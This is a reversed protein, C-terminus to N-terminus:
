DAWKKVGECFEWNDRDNRYGFTEKPEKGDVLIILEQFEGDQYVLYQDIEEDNCGIDEWHLAGKQLSWNFEYDKAPTKWIMHTAQNIIETVVGRNNNYWMTGTEWSYSDSRIVRPILWLENDYQQVIVAWEYSTNENLVKVVIEEIKENIKDALIM